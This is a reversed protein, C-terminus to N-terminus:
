QEPFIMADAFAHQFNPDTSLDVHETAEALQDALQWVTRSCAALRAGALSANGVFRIRDQPVEPPLLGIRQANSRRIFNGFGGAVWVTELDTANLGARRLLINIGARIAGAALQLQRVDRQTFVIPRSTASQEAPVLLLATHGNHDVLRQRLSQPTQPPLQAAPRFRGDSALVGHRLLEAGLDVLASGCLGAPPRNGIVHYRIEHHMVVKEIAGIAARMGCEIRAGEFAPGAATAAATLRGGAGLVIEGNTGIDVLLRPSQGQTLGTALMGAVTDGGVFGGIVPFVFVEARRHIALDLDCATLHLGRGIASVFPVQGLYRPSIGCLLHLMTTNGAFTATYIEQTAVGAQAALREILENCARRVADQLAHLGDPHDGAYQIRTIVDDGCRTQPNLASDVALEHGGVVDVLSAALTTTGVDVAVAYNRLTTDGPEFDVLRRGAGVVTGRFGGDRLRRPVTRLLELDADLLGAARELRLWDPRDDGRAPPSLEVYHKCVPPDDAVQRDVHAATLIQHQEALLSSAPVEVVAPGVVEAQCALRVGSGLDDASLVQQETASAEGLGQRAVVRCKGCRGEGGCPLDLVVGASIAVDVLRTGPLAYVTRNWPLFTVPVEVQQM